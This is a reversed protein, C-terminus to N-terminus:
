KSIRVNNGKTLQPIKNLHEISKERTDKSIQDFNTDEGFKKIEKVPLDNYIQKIDKLFSM